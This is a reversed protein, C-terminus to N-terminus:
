CAAMLAKSFGVHKLMNLGLMDLGTPVITIHATNETFSQLRESIVFSEVFLYNTQM